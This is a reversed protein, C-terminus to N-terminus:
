HAPSHRELNRDAEVDAAHKVLRRVMLFTEMIITKDSADDTFAKDARRVVELLEYPTWPTGRDSSLTAPM